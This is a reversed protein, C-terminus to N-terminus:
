NSSPSSHCRKYKRGSGCWCVENRGRSIVKLPQDKPDLRPDQGGRAQAITRILRQAVRENRKKVYLWYDGDRRGTAEYEWTFVRITPTEREYEATLGTAPGDFFKVRFKAVVPAAANDSKKEM